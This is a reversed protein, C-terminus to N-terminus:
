PTDGSVRPGPARREKSFARYIDEVEPLRWAPRMWGFVDYTGGTVWLSASRATTVERAMYALLGAHGRAVAKTLAARQADNLEGEWVNPHALGGVGIGFEGIHLHPIQARPIGLLDELIHSQFAAEHQLLAEAVEEVTPLRSSREAEPVAVTLDMYQSVAIADLSTIFRALHQRGEADMRLVFDEPLQVHHSFNHSLEVQGALGRERVEARMREALQAWREPQYVTSNMLESGLELRVPWGPVSESRELARAIAELTPLMLEQLYADSMPDVDFYGRWPTQARWSRNTSPDFGHQYVPPDLHPKVVVALGAELAAAIAGEIAEFSPVTRHDIRNLGAYTYTPVLTLLEFGLERVRAVHAAPADYDRAGFAAWTVGIRREGPPLTAPAADTEAGEAAQVQPTAAGPPAPTACGAVVIATGAGWAAFRGV